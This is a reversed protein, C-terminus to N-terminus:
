LCHFRYYGDLVMHGVNGDGEGVWGEEDGEWSVWGSKVLELM